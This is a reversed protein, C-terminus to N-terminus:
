GFVSGTIGLTPEPDRRVDFHKLRAISRHMGAMSPSGQGVIGGLRGTLIVCCGKHSLLGLSHSRYIYGKDLNTM